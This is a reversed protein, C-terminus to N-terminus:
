ARGQDPNIELDLAAFLKDVAARRRKEAKAKQTDNASPDYLVSLADFMRSLARPDLEALESAWITMSAIVFSIGTCGVAKSGRETVDLLYGHIM